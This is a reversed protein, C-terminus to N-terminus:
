SKYLIKDFTGTNQVADAYYIFRVWYANLSFNVMKAYQQGNGVTTSDFIMFETTTGIPISFWENDLPPEISLSAQIWFRGQFNTTYIAVTHTGNAQGTQADGPLASTVYRVQYDGYPKVSFDSALVEIAPAISVAIGDILQFTGYANKNIDTYLCTDVGQDTTSIINFRYLGPMWQHVEEPLLILQAKGATEDVIAVTKKLLLEQSGVLPVPTKGQSQDVRYIKATLQQGVLKVTKRDNDKVVFDISNTIGKYIKTDYQIMPLNVNVTNSNFQALTIYEKFKFLTFLSMENALVKNSYKHKQMRRCFVVLLWQDVYIIVYELFLSVYHIM